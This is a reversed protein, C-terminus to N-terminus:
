HAGIARQMKSVTWMEIQTANKPPTFLFDAPTATAALDWRLFRVRLQPHSPLNKFTAVLQQPLHDKVGIWLEADAEGGTLAVHDCTVGGLGLFGAGVTERGLYSVTVAQRRLDHYPDSVAYDALPPVFGYQEDLADVLRDITGPITSVSYVNPKSEYITLRRGDAIFLREGKRDTSRIALKDPRQVLAAIKAKRGSIEFEGLLKADIERTANFRFTQAAALTSSMQRLIQDASPADAMAPVLSAGLFGLSFLIKRTNMNPQGLM